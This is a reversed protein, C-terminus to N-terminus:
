VAGGSLITLNAERIRAKVHEIELRYATLLSNGAVRAPTLVLWVRSAAATENARMFRYDNEDLPTGALEADAIATLEVCCGVVKDLAQRFEKHHKTVLYDDLGDAHHRHLDRMLNNLYTLKVSAWVTLDIPEDIEEDSDGSFAIAIRYQIEKHRLKAKELREKLFEVSAAAAQANQFQMQRWVPAAAILAALIALLGTILTQWDKIEKYLKLWSNERVGAFIAFGLVVGLIAAATVIVIGNWNKNIWNM